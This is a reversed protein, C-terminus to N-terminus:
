CEGYYATAMRLQISIPNDEGHFFTYWDELDLVAVWTALSLNKM